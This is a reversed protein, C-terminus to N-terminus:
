KTLQKFWVALVHKCVQVPEGKKNEIYQPYHEEFMGCNCTLYGEDSMVAYRGYPDSASDVMAAVGPRSDLSVKGSIVIEAAKWAIREAHPFRDSILDIKSKMTPFEYGVWFQFADRKGDPGSPFAFSQDDSTAVVYSKGKRDYKCIQQFM